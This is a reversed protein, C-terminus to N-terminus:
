NKKGAIMMHPSLSLISPERETLRLLNMLAEKKVPNSRTEFYKNDLWIMGEVAMLDLATFGALACEDKLEEPKHFYAEPLLGPWNKPPNHIGTTLEKKCMEYFGAEHIM